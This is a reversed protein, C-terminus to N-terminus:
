NAVLWNNYINKGNMSKNGNYWNKINDYKLEDKKKRLSGSSRKWYFGEKKELDTESNEYINTSEKSIKLNDFINKKLNM